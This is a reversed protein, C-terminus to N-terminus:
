LVGSDLAGAAAVEHVPAGHTEARAASARPYGSCPDPANSELPGRSVLQPVCDPVQYGLFFHALCVTCSTVWWISLEMPSCTIEWEDLWCDPSCLLVCFSATQSLRLQLCSSYSPAIWQCPFWGACPPQWVRRWTIIVLCLWHTQVSMLRQVM